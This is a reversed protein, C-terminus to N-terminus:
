LGCTPASAERVMAHGLSAASLRAVHAHPQLEDAPENFGLHGNVGLGPVCADIPGNAALWAAVRQCEAAPDSAMGDFAVYRDALGLPDVFVRRLHEECSGAADGPLGGWEDLKLVRLSAVLAPDRRGREAFLEYCRTPTSGSALVLLAAPTERVVREIWDAASASAAEHDAAVHVTPTTVREPM